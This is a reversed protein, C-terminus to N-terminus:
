ATHVKFLMRNVHENHKLNPQVHYCLFGDSKKYPIKVGNMELSCLSDNVASTRNSKQMFLAEFKDITVRIKWM